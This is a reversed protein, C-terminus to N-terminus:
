EARVAPGETVGMVSRRFRAPVAVKAVRAESGGPAAMEVPVAMVAADGGWYGPTAVGEAQGVSVTSIPHMAGPAGMAATVWSCGAWAARAAPAAMSVTSGRGAPDAM